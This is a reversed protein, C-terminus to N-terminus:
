VMIQGTLYTVANGTLRVKNRKMECGLEGGRQSIQKTKLKRKRLKDAWYPTLLTHASGTVPDEDIGYAPFFCRSVFDYENDQATVIMGRYKTLAALMPFNPNLNEVEKRSKLVVLLDDKGRLVERPKLGGLIGRLGKPSRIKKPKDTQFNMSYSGSDNPSVVITGADKTKFRMKRLARDSSTYLVHAAALTAHGCLRVEQLPTFWRIAFKGRGKIVVFATESLNNEAAIDQMVADKPFDPVPVVAAPNGAFRKKTFADIQYIPLNQM